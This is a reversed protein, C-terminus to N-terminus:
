AVGFELRLASLARNFGAAFRAVSRLPCAAEGDSPLLLLLARALGEEALRVPEFEFLWFVVNGGGIVVNAALPLGVGPGVAVGTELGVGAEEGLWFGLAVGRSIPM